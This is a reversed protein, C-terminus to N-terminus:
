TERKEYAFKAVERNDHYFDMNKCKMVTKVSSVSSSDKCNSVTM